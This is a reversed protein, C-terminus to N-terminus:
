FGIIKLDYIVYRPEAPVVANPPQYVTEELPSMPGPRDPIPRRIGLSGGRIPSGPSSSGAPHMSPIALERAEDVPPSRSRYNETEPASHDFLGAQGTNRRGGFADVDSKPTKPLYTAASALSLHGPMYTPTAHTAHQMNHHM